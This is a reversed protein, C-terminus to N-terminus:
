TKDEKIRDLPVFKVKPEDDWKKYLVTDVVAETPLDLADAVAELGTKRMANMNFLRTVLEPNKAVADAVFQEAVETAKWSYGKTYRVEYEGYNYRGGEGLTDATKAEVESKLRRVLAAVETLTSILACLEDLDDPLEQPDTIPESGYAHHLATELLEMAQQRPSDVRTLPEDSNEDDLVLKTDTM